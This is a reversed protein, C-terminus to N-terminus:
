ARCAARLSERPWVGASRKPGRQNEAGQGLRLCGHLRRGAGIPLGRRHAADAGRDPREASAGVAGRSGLTLVVSDAGLHRIRRGGRPLPYAHPADQAVVM